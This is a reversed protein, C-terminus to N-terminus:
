LTPDQGSAESARLLARAATAQRCAHGNLCSCFFIAIIPGPVALLDTDKSTSKRRIKINVSWAIIQSLLQAYRHRTPLSIRGAISESRKADSGLAVVNSIRVVGFKPRRPDIDTTTKLSGFALTLASLAAEPSSAPEVAAASQPRKWVQLEVPSCSGPPHGPRVLIFSYRYRTVYLVLVARQCASVGGVSQLPYVTPFRHHSTHELSM